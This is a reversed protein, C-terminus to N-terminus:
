RESKPIHVKTFSSRSPENIVRSRFSLRSCPGAALSVLWRGRRRMTRLRRAGAEFQCTLDILRAASEKGTFESILHRSKEAGKRRM